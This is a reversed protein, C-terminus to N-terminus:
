NELVGQSFEWLIGAAMKAECLADLGLNMLINYGIRISVQM